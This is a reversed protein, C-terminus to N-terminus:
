IRDAFKRESLRFYVLGSLVLAVLTGASVAVWPGPAPGDILAWRWGELIGAVPNIAFVYKLGGDVIAIPFVVPSVFLWIQLLFPLAYRVDRYLVNAAALWYGMGLAVALGALALMPLLIVQLGPAEGYVVMAAGALLTAILFDLGAALAAATPALLRPFWVKNILDPNEVLSEAASGVATSIFFWVAMGAFAFVPYPVDGTDIDAFSGFVASFVVVALLPQMVAWGVGFLTQRYRLALDRRALVIALERHAWLEGLNLRPWGRSRRIVRWDSDRQDKDVHEVASM